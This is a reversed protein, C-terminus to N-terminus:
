KVPVDVAQLVEYNDDNQVFAVVHLSQMRLPRQADPFPSENKVYEDLYKSLGARIDNVDVTVSHELDKKLLAVGAPGGPLARVVRHHYNTGNRAKYRVWDEVLAFRLRMTEGPKELGKVSASIAIKDGKREASAEIHVAGPQELQKEIVARYENYKDEADERSGGGPADAKGNFFISPTGRLARGYFEGRKETDGNTMPDPGPIHLHYQLLVVDKPSYTKELGDFALDAAVCPPCMTGTFLEVLVTRDSKGKRGAFKALKYNPSTKSYDEYAVTELKAVRAQAAAAQEALGSKELAAALSTLLSLQALPAAKPDLMKDAKVALTGALSAYDKEAALTEIVKMLYDLQLRPGYSEASRLATEVWEQVDKAAAQNEKAAEILELTIDFVRPDNPTRTVLERKVEFINKAATAELYAPIARSEGKISGLVKKAGPRPVKGEFQLSAGNALHLQFEVLENGVKIEKVTTAPVKELPVAEASWKGDKNDLRVIWLNLVEGNEVIHVKWSGALPADQATLTASLAALIALSAVARM